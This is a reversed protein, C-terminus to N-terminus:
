LTKFIDKLQLTDGKKFDHTLAYGSAVELVYRAKDLPAYVECPEQLCPPCASAVNIIKGKSDLWLIDISFKMDKMWFRYIDEHDFVFFMGKNEGLGNRGQLGRMLDEEKSVVEVELCTKESCVSSAYINQSFFVLVM